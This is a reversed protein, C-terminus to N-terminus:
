FVTPRPFPARGPAGPTHLKRVGASFGRLVQSAACPELLRSGLGTHGSDWVRFPAPM